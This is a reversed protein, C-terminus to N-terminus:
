YLFRYFNDFIMAFIRIEIISFIGIVVESRLLHKDSEEKQKVMELLLEESKENYNEVLVVEGNLLENVSIGLIRCLDLMLSADPLSRGREWKSVARDTISLKEALQM